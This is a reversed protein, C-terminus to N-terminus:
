STRGQGAASYIRGLATSQLGTRRYVAHILLVNWVALSVGTAWAAGVAQYRPILLWNLIINVAAAITVGVATDREHGTMNLIFGVSGAAANILQGLSLIVLPTCAERFEGGFVLTVIEKGYIWFLAVVPLAGALVARASWTIMKQLKEKAGHAYLRAIEPGIVFNAVSLSFAVLNAGQVAVRYIGVQSAPVMWGLMLIDMNNNIVAMGGIFSLPLLTKLWRRQDYKPLVSVMQRPRYRRLWLYGLVLAIFAAVGHLAMAQQSQFREGGLLCVALGSLVLFAFPRFIHEPLQGSVTHGLGRLVSGLLAALPILLLLVSAMAMTPNGALGAAYRSFFFLAVASLVGYTFAGFALIQWLGRLLGWQGIAKYTATFRLALNSIGCEAPIQIVKVLAFAFAYTGYGETGLVRALFVALLLEIV